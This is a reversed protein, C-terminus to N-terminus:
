LFVIHFIDRRRGLCQENVMALGKQCKVQKCRYGGMHNICQQLDSACSHVGDHCEDVDEFPKLIFVYIKFNCGCSIDEFLSFNIWM